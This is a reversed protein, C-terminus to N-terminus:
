KRSNYGVSFTMNLNWTNTRFDRNLERVLTAATVFDLNTLYRARETGIAVQVDSTRPAQVGNLFFTGTEQRLVRTLTWSSRGGRDFRDWSLAFGGGSGVGTNAGLPQGRNTHGQPLAGHVYIGGETRNRALHPLQYNIIEARLASLRTANVTTVKRLGLGYSRSHDPEQLFDRRHWNHDERGYEGYVELGSQPFVWRAFASALQNDQGGRADTLGLSEPINKKQFAQLPKTLYSRPIGGKPWLSHFFRAGGVELGEVGRPQIVAILGSSFRLTGSEVTSSYHSSGQVPSFDSQELRGWIARLHIRGLWLNVPSGTGAFAHAFGPANGGLIFQYEHM